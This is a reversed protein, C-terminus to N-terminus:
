PRRRTRTADPRQRVGAAAPLNMPHQAYLPHSLLEGVLDQAGPTWQEAKGVAERAVRPWAEGRGAAQQVDGLADHANRFATAFAEHENFTYYPNAGEYRKRDEPSMAAVEADTKGAFRTWRPDPTNWADAESALDPMRYAHGMEHTLTQRADRTPVPVVVGDVNDEDALYVQPTGATTFSYTGLAGTDRFPSYAARNPRVGALTSLSDM